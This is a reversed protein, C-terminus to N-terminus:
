LIKIIPTIISDCLIVYQNKDVLCLSMELYEQGNYLMKSFTYKYSKYFTKPFLNQLNLNQFEENSYRLKKILDDSSYRIKFIFSNKIFKINLLLM